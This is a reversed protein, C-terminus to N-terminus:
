TGALSEEEDAREVDLGGQGPGPDRFMRLAWAAALALVIIGAGILAAESMSDAFVQLGETLESQPRNSNDSPHQIQQYIKQAEDAAYKATLSSLILANTIGGLIMSGVTNGSQAAVTMTGSIMGRQVPDADAIAHVNVPTTALNVAIGLIFTPIVILVYSELTLALGIFALCAAVMLYGIVTPPRWGVKDKLRGSLIGGLAIGVIGPLMALGAQFPSYGLVSQFYIGIYIFAWILPLRIWFILFLGARLSPRKLMEMSILRKKNRDIGEGASRLFIHNLLLLPAIIIPNIFFIWEWSIADVIAGGALPGVALGVSSVAAYVGFATGTKGEPAVRTVLAQICPMLIAAGLGQVARGAIILPADTALGCMLSGVGFIVLGINMGKIQGIRDGFMGGPILLVTFAILYANVVWQGETPSLRLDEEVTPLAVSIITLDIATVLSAMALVFVSVKWGKASLGGGNGSGGATGSESTGM